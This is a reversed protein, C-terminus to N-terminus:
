PVERKVNVFAGFANLFIAKGRRIILGGLWKDNAIFWTYFLYGM